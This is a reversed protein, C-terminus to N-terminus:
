NLEPTNPSIDMNAQFGQIKTIKGFKRLEDDFRIKSVQDKNSGKEFINAKSFQHFVPFEHKLRNVRRIIKVFIRCLQNM